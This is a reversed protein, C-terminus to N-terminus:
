NIGINIKSGRTSVDVHGDGHPCIIHAIRASTDPEPQLWHASRNLTVSGTLLSRNLCFDFHDIRASTLCLVSSLLLLRINIKIFSYTDGNIIPWNKARHNSIVIFNRYNISRTIGPHLLVLSFHRSIQISAEWQDFVVCFYHRWPPIGAATAELEYM